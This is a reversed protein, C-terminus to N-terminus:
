PSRVTPSLSAAAAALCVCLILSCIIPAWFFFLCNVITDALYFAAFLATVHRATKPESESLSGLRWFVLAQVLFLLSLTLGFGVHFDWYSRTFGQTVATVSKVASIQRLQEDTVDGVWPYGATHGLGFLLTVGSAIRLLLRARM